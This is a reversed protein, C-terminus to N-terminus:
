HKMQCKKKFFIYYYMNRQNTPRPFSMGYKEVNNVPHEWLYKMFSLMEEFFFVYSTLPKKVGILFLKRRSFLVDVEINFKEILSNKLLIAFGNM